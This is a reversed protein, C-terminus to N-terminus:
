TSPILATTIAILGLIRLTGESIVSASFSVGDEIVKLQLEGRRTREVDIGNVRPLLAHVARNVEEFQRPAQLKLSHFFSALNAGAQDLSRVEQLPNDERMLRKPELYYFHWRTLEERFATIHPYHPAYLPTSALTHDLGVDHHSPHAQGEMRLILKDSSVELFPK